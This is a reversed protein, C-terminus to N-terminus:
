NKMDYSFRYQRKVHEYYYIFSIQNIKYVNMQIAVQKYTYKIIKTYNKLSTHSTTEKM